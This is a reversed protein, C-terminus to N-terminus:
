KPWATRMSAPRQKSGESEVVFRVGHLIDWIMIRTTNFKAALQKQSLEKRAAETRIQGAIAFTMQAMKSNPNPTFSAPVARPAKQYTGVAVYGERFADMITQVDCTLLARLYEVKVEFPSSQQPVVLVAPAHEPELEPREVVGTALLTNISATEAPESAPVEAEPAPATETKAKKGRGPQLAPLPGLVPPQEDVGARMRICALTNDALMAKQADTLPAPMSHAGVTALEPHPTSLTTAGKKGRRTKPTAAAQEAPTDLAAPTTEPTVGLPTMGDLAPVQPVPVNAPHEVIHISDPRQVVTTETNNTRPTRAKRTKVPHETVVDANRAPMVQEKDSADNNRKMVNEAAKSHERIDLVTGKRLLSEIMTEAITAHAAHKLYANFQVAYDPGPVLVKRLEVGSYKYVYPSTLITSAERDFEAPATTYIIKAETAM